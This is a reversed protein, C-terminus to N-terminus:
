RGGIVITPILFLAWRDAPPEQSDRVEAVFFFGKLEIQTFPITITVVDESSSVNGSLEGDEQLTLGDPIGSRPILWTAWDPLPLELWHYPRLGGKAQLQTAYPILGIGEIFTLTPLLIVKTLLLDFEQDGIIELPAIEVRLLFDKQDWTPEPSNDFVRITFSFDGVVMQPVGAIRGTADMGLGDPFAGANVMWAYPAIGGAAELRVEYPEGEEANPLPSTTAIRVGEVFPEITVTVPTEDTSGHADEVRLTFAFSGEGLPIGSLTGAEALGLGPPLDGTVVTWVYPALGGEAAFDYAYDESVLGIPPAPPVIRVPAPECVGQGGCREGEGCQADNVCEICAGAFCIEGEACPAATWSLGSEDCVLLAAEACALEGPACSLALCVGEVCGTDSPCAVPEGWATGDDGCVRYGPADDELAVCDRARPECVLPVCAGERCVAEEGCDQVVWGSGDELCVSLRREDLCRLEGPPCVETPVDAAVDEEARVDPPDPREGDPKSWLDPRSPGLDAPPLSPADGQRLDQGSADLPPADDDAGGDPCGSPILLLLWAAAMRLHNRWKAGARCQM